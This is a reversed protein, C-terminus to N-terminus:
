GNGHLQEMIENLCPAIYSNLFHEMNHALTLNNKHPYSFAISNQKDGPNNLGENYFVVVGDHEEDFRFSVGLPIELEKRDLAMLKFRKTSVIVSEHAM